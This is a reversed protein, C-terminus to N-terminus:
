FLSKVVGFWAMWQKPDILMAGFALAGAGIYTRHEVTKELAGIRKVDDKRYEVLARVDAHIEGVRFYLDNENEIKPPEPTDVM